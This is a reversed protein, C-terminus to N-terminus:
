NLFIYVCVYMCRNTPLINMGVNISDTYFSFVYVTIPVQTFTKLKGHYPNFLVIAKWMENWDFTRALWKFEIDFSYTIVLYREPESKM